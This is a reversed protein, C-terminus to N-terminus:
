ALKIASFADNLFCEVMVRGTQELSKNTPKILQNANHLLGAVALQLSTATDLLEAARQPITSRLGESRALLVGVVSILHFITQAARATRRVDPPMGFPAM